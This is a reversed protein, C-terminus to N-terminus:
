EDCNIKANSLPKNLRVLARTGGVMNGAKFSFACPANFRECGLVKRDIKPYSYIQFSVPKYM